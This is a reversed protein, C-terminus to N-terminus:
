ISHKVLYFYAYLIFRGSHSIIGIQYPKLFILFELSIIPVIDGKYLALQIEHTDHLTGRRERSCYKKKERSV